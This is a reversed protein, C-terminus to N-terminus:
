HAQEDNATTVGTYGGRQARSLYVRLGLNGHNDGVVVGVVTNAAQGEVQAPLDFPPADEEAWIEAFREVDSGVVDRVSKGDEVAENLHSELEAGMEETREPGIRTVQKWHFVCEDVVPEIEELDGLGEYPYLYDEEVRPEPHAEVPVGRPGAVLFAATIPWPWSFPLSEVSPFFWGAGLASIALCIIGYRFWAPYIYWVFDEDDSSKGVPRRLRAFLMSFAYALVVFYAADEWNADLVTSGEWLHVALLVVFLFVSTAALVDLMEHVIPKRPLNPRSWDEAFGLVDEGTVDEVSQGDALAERLHDELEASMEDVKHEPIGSFVWRGKCMSIVTRTQEKQYEYSM